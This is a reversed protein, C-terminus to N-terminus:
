PLVINFVHTGISVTANLDCAGNGYDITRVPRSGPTYAITGSVFPHRHMHLPDPSCQFDRILNSAVATFNESQANVGSANGNLKVMARTWDIPIVQGKYCTTDSTNTLEKTRNCTWTITGGGPKLITINAAISWKLNTGPNPTSPITNPTINTVTKNTINVTFNDVVYNQSTVNMSFGPNRYHIASSPSSGSFDYILKGTRTRGDRGVCGVTGFDVTIVQGAKTIVACTSAEVADLASTENTRYTALSGGDSVQGGMSEIDAATNEAMNNDTATTQETDETATPTAEKEKKKCSTFSLSAITFLIGLSMSFISTRHALTQLGKPPNNRESKMITQKNAEKVAYNCM